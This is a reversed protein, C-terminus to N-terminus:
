YDWGFVPPGFRYEARAPLPPNGGDSAEVGWEWIVLEKSTFVVVLEKGKRWRKGRSAPVYEPRSIYCWGVEDEGDVLRKAPLIREPTRLTDRLAPLLAIKEPDYKFFYKYDKMSLYGELYEGASGHPNQVEPIPAYGLKSM